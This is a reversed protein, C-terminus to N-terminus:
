VHTFVAGCLWQGDDRVQCSVGMETWEAFLNAKHVESDMWGDVVATGTTYGKALNEAAGTVGCAEFVPELPAHEFADAAVLGAVRETVQESACSSVGLPPLGAGARQENTATVVDQAM